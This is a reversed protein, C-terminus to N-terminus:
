VLKKRLRLKKARGTYSFIIESDTIIDNFEYEAIKKLKKYIELIM